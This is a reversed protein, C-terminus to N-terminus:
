LTLVDIYSGRPDLFLVNSGDKLGDKHTRGIMAGGNEKFLVMLQVELLM